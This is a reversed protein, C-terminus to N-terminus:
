AAPHLGALIRRPVTDLLRILADKGLKKRIWDMGEAAIRVDTPSHADSAVAHALGQKLMKRAVSAQKRGHCGAVAGLDVVMACHEALQRVTEPTKWLPQYREPHAIVPLHGRMRLQFVHDLLGTPLQHVRFEVLFAASSGDGGYGPGPGYHPIAGQKMREFFVSDWMNEAALLLRVGIGREAVSTRVESFAASIDGLDPLYQGEKQHPTACLTDFGLDALGAVMTLSAALEPSGDDLGPLIHSHLDVFGM